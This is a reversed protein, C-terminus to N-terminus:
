GGEVVELRAGAEVSVSKTVTVAVTVGDGVVDVTQSGGVVVVSVTVSDGLM